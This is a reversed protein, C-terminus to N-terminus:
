LAESVAVHVLLPRLQEIDVTNVGTTLVQEVMLDSFEGVIRLMIDLVTANGVLDYLVVRLTHTRDALETSEVKVRLEDGDIEVGIPIILGSTSIMVASSSVALPKSGTVLIVFPDPLETTTSGTVRGTPATTDLTVVVSASM